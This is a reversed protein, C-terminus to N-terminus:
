ASFQVSLREESNINYLLYILIFFRERLIGSRSFARKSQKNAKNRLASHCARRENTEPSTDTILPDKRGQRFTAYERRRSSKM